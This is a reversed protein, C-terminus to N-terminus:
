ICVYISMSMIYISELLVVVFDRYNSVGGTNESTPNFGHNGVVVGEGHKRVLSAATGRGWGAVGGGEVVAVVGGVVVVRGWVLVGVKLEVAHRGLKIEALGPYRGGTPGTVGRPACVEGGGAPRVLPLIRSGGQRGTLGRLDRGRRVGGQGGAGTGRGVIFPAIAGGGM